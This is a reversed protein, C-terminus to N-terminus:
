RCTPPARVARKLQSYARRYPPVNMRRMSSVSVSREDGSITAPMRSPM